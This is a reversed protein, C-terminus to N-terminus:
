IMGVVLEKMDIRMTISYNMEINSDRSWRDMYSDFVIVSLRAQEDYLFCSKTGICDYLFFFSFEKLTFLLLFHFSSRSINSIEWCCFYPTKGPLLLFTRRSVAPFKYEHCTQKPPLLPLSSISISRVEFCLYPYLCNLAGIGLLIYRKM